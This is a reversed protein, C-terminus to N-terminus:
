RPLALNTLTVLMLEVQEPRVPAFNVIESRLKWENNERTVKQWLFGAEMSTRESKKNLFRDAEQFSSVGTLSWAGKGEVHVWFNRNSKTNHLDEVSVPLSLFSDHSTKIDGHLDPTISSLIGAENALPFYLRSVAEPASVRFSAEEDTFQWLTNKPIGNSM